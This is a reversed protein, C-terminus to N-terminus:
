RHEPPGIAKVEGKELKAQYDNWTMPPLGSDRAVMSVVGSTGNITFLSSDTGGLTYTVSGITAGTISPTVPM